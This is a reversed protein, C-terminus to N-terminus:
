KQELDSITKALLNKCYNRVRGNLSKPPQTPLAKIRDLAYAAHGDLYDLANLALMASYYNSEQVNGDKILEEVARRVDQENSSYQGLAQAAIVRVPIAPDSSLAQILPKRAAQVGAEQRMLLGMAGWYRVASDDDKLASILQPISQENSPSNKSGVNSALEAAAMIKAMPYRADDQGMEWPSGDGARSHIEAEPLFGIDRIRIAWDQQVKRMRKLVDQHEASEALNCVEDPDSQLDYLEEPAKREWFTRQAANLQGQDYLQKWVNTTPTQFMYAIYQGYIQHPMYNRIYVYRQDRVSRVLDYREDMRGRFGYLYDQPPAAYKGLFAHGHFQSPPQIGALSLLTPALDVFSVLRDTKGGVSYDKCALEKYKAPISVILPVRLGSNYPWRKNRPMGSGHDGYYFVITDDTLGAEELEKLYRGAQTDMETVKDYYQAWDQRVEPTDPHYAPVRVGAPDHVATHPRKRLQSEHSITLNFIAFFPQDAKRNKWHAKRSSQDWVEGPKELNYDEKSNNTCYYGAQRLYQPYMLHEAALRTMSRMHEAGLAPPLMGSIITTRAPACVPANSWCNLYIMGRAALGDLNPTDAYKDGYCGMHPGNDESTIWLINPRDAASAVSGVALLFLLSLWSINKMSDGQSLRVPSHLLQRVPLPRVLSRGVPLIDCRAFTPRVDAEGSNYGLILSIFVLRVGRAARQKFAFVGRRVIGLLGAAAEAQM